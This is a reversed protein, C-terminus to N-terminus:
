DKIDSWEFRYFYNKFLWMGVTANVLAMLPISIRFLILLIWVIFLVFILREFNKQQVMGAYHFGYFLVGISTGYLILVPAQMWSLANPFYKVLISIEPLCLIMFVMLFIMTRKSWSFPLNRLLAFVKNEFYHIRSIIMFNSSFALTCAMGMLRVDYTEDQYLRTVGFILLASFLKTGL